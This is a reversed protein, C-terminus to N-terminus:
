LILERLRSRLDVLKTVSKPNLQARMGYLERFLPVVTTVSTFGLEIATEIAYLLDVSATSANTIASESLIRRISKEQEAALQELSEIANEVPTDPDDFHVQYLDITDTQLRLPSEECDRTLYKYSLNPKLGERMAVRTAFILDDRYERLTEGLIREADRYVDTLAYCDVGIESIRM